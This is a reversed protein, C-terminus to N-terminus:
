PRKIKDMQASILKALQTMEHGQTTLDDDEKYWGTMSITGIMVGNNFIPASLCAMREHSERQECSYGLARIKEINAKLDERSTITYPTIPVLEITGILPAADPDFALFCKGIATSHLRKKDGINGTPAKAHPSAYKYICVARDNRRKAIFTTKEYKDALLNLYPRATRLLVSSELFTIGTVYLQSGIGYVKKEANIYQIFDNELLTKLIDHVTTKPYRLDGAIKSLKAGKPLAALYSLVDITKQVMNVGNM